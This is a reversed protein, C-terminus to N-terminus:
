DDKRLAELRERLEQTAKPVSKQCLSPVLGPNDGVSFSKPAKGESKRGKMQQWANAARTAITTDGYAPYTVISVDYLNVHLLTRTVSGDKHEKFSDEVTRFAFSMQSVDGRGISEVIDRGVTTNPPRITVKLGRNNESLELTNATNRGIIKSPDHDVLARVDAGDALSRTFAGRAVKEHFGPMLETAKGFLAAYGSLEPLADGEGRNEVALECTGLMRTERQAEVSSKKEEDWQSQCVALRQDEDPYDEVMTEDGACRSMFDDHSEGDNPTPIPM